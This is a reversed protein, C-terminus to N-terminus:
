FQFVRSFALSEPLGLLILPEAFLPSLLARVQQCVNLGRM